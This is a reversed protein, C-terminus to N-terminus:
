FPETALTSKPRQPLFLDDWQTRALRILVLRMKASESPADAFYSKGLGIEPRTPGVILTEGPKLRCHIALEPL